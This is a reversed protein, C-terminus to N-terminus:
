QWPPPPPLYPGPCPCVPAPCHRMYAATTAAVSTCQRGAACEVAGGGGGEGWRRLKTLHLDLARGCAAARRQVEPTNGESRLTPRAILRPCFRHPPWVPSWTATHWLWVAPVHYIPAWFHGDECAQRARSGGGVCFMRGAGQCVPCPCAGGARGGRGDGGGHTGAGWSVCTGVQSGGEGGSHSDAGPTGGGLLDDGGPRQQHRHHLPRVASSPLPASPHPPRPQLSTPRRPLPHPAPDRADPETSRRAPQRTDVRKLHGVVRLNM